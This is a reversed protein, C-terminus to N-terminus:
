EMAMEAAAVSHLTMTDFSPVSIDEPKMILPLETCGLVIGEAGAAALDGAIRLCEIRSPELFREMVLEDLIINHLREVDDPGPVVVDIGHMEALRVRYFDELMTYRTGM